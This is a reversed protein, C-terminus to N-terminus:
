VFLDDNQCNMEKIKKVLYHVYRILNLQNVKTSVRNEKQVLSSIVPCFM